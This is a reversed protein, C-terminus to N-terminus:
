DFLEGSDIVRIPQKTRGQGSGNSEILSLTEEGDIMRGFVVHGGNLHPLDTFCIFFQSGNTNKGANAMSLVGRGTHKLLFNEDEFKHGYISEGGIGSHHTFDGGQAMFGPIVRHFTSGKFHLPINSQKSKGFEGTCLARFNEATKPVKDSFLEFVMRGSKSTGVLVDMFVKPNSM